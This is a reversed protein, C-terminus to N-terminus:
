WEGIVHPELPGAEAYARLLDNMLSERIPRHSETHFLNKLEHPDAEVDYLEGDHYGPWWTIRWSESHLSTHRYLPSAKSWGCSFAADHVRSREGTLVPVLSRGQVRSPCNVGALELLTPMVDTNSVPSRVVSPRMGPARILLPVRLLSAFPLQGKYLLGHDGLLDGHDSTFCVITENNLALRGLASLIRGVCEDILAVMAYTNQVIHRFHEAEPPPRAGGDSPFVMETLLRRYLPPRGDHEGSRAHPAPLAVSDFRRAYEEPPTFPHHPDPFGAFVFFPKESGRELYEIVQEAVYTSHHAAAPVKSRYVGPYKPGAAREYGKMEVAEPRKEALWQGYHGMAFDTAGEGHEETLAVRQFGYYPGSWGKLMGARWSAFSEGHGYHAPSQYPTLHLKGAAFTEYGAEALVHALTVEHEDLPIGNDIVGHAPLHRGTMLSARSPMCVPNTVYHHDFRVGAAALADLHPTRAVENGYVGLSDQRQQDTHILLINRKM